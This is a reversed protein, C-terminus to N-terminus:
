ERHEIGQVADRVVTHKSVRLQDILEPDHLKPNQHMKQSVYLEEWWNGGSAVSKIFEIDKGQDSSIERPSGTYMKHLEGVAKEPSYVYMKKALGVPPNEKRQEIYEMFASFDPSRTKGGLAVLELPRGLNKLLQPDTTQDLHPAIAEVVDSPSMGQSLWYILARKAAESQPNTRQEERGGYTLLVQLLNEGATRGDFTKFESIAEQVGQEDLGGSSFVDALRQIEAQVKPIPEISKMPSSISLDDCCGVHVVLFSLSVGAVVSRLFGSFLNNM